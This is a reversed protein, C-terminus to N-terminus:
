DPAFLGTLAASAVIIGLLLVYEARVSRRLAVLAAYEGRALAPVYRQRNLAALVLALALLAAKTCLLGGYPAGLAAFGPLLAAALTAGALPLLLVLPLARRSFARLVPLLSPADLQRALADLSALSGLWFAALTVHAVVLAGLWARPAHAVTHGSIAFSSLIFASGALGWFGWRGRGRLLCLVGTLRVLWTLAAPTSLTLRWLPAETSGQWAGALHAPEAPAQALLVLLAALIPFASDRAGAARAEVCTLQFLVRGAAELLLVFAAGRLALWVADIM